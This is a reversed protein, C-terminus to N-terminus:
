GRQQRLNEAATELEEKERELQEIRITQESNLRNMFALRMNLSRNNKELSSTRRLLEEIEQQSTSLDMGKQEGAPGARASGLRQQVARACDMRQRQREQLGATGGTDRAVERSRKLAALVELGITAQREVRGGATRMDEEARQAAQKGFVGRLGSSAAVDTLLVPNRPSGAAEVGGPTSGAPLGPPGGQSGGSGQKRLRTLMNGLDEGSTGTGQAGTRGMNKLSNLRELVRNAENIANLNEGEAAGGAGKHNNLRNLTEQLEAAAEQVQPAVPFGPAVALGSPERPANEPAGGLPPLASMGRSSGGASGPQLLVVLEETLSRALDTPLGMTPLDNFLTKLETSLQRKSNEGLGLDNDLGPLIEAEIIDM